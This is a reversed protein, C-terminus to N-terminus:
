DKKKISLNERYNGRQFYFIWYIQKIKLKFTSIEDFIFHM